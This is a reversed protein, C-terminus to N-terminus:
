QATFIHIMYQNMHFLGRQEDAEHAACRHVSDIRHKNFYNFFCGRDFRDRQKIHGRDFISGLELGEQESEARSLRRIDVRESSGVETQAFPVSLRDKLKKVFCLLIWLLDGRDSHVPLRNPM